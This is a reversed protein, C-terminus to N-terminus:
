KTEISVIGDITLTVDSGNDPDFTFKSVGLATIKGNISKPGIRGDPLDSYDYIMCIKKGSVEQLCIRKDEHTMQTFDNKM